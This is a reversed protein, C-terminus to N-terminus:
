PAVPGISASASGKISYSPGSAPAQITASADKCYTNAGTATCDVYVHATNKFVQPLTTSGFVTKINAKTTKDAIQYVWTV